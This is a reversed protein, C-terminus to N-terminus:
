RGELNTKDCYVKKQLYCFMRGGTVGDFFGNSHQNKLRKPFQLGDTNTQCITHACPSTANEDGIQSQFLLCSPLRSM